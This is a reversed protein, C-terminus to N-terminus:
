CFGKPFLLKFVLSNGTGINEKKVICIEMYKIKIKVLFFYVKGVVVDKLHYKGKDYEFEIHLCDEIGVEMKINQGIEPEPIPKLVAFDTEKVIKSGYQRNITVRVFYRLSVSAGYYSEFEKEFKAFNFKYSKDELLAGTSELEKGISMFDSSAKADTPVDAEPVILM